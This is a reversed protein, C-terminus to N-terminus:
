QIEITFQVFRGDACRVSFFALGRADDPLIDFKAVALNSGPPSAIVIREFRPPYPEGRPINVGGTCAIGPGNTQIHVEATDGRKVKSTAYVVGGPLPVPVPVGSAALAQPLPLFVSAPGNLCIFVPDNRNTILNFDNIAAPATPSFARFRANAADYRFVSQVAGVPQVAGVVTTLPTGVEFPLVLNNCGPGLVLPAPASPTATPTPTVTATATATGTQAQVVRGAQLGFLMACLIAFAGLWAAAKMKREADWGVTCLM